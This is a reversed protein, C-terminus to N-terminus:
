GDRVAEEITTELIKGKTIRVKLANAAKIHEMALVLEVNVLVIGRWM